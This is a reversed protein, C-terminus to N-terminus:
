EGSFALGTMITISLVLGFFAGLTGLIRVFVLYPFKEDSGSGVLKTWIAAAGGAMVGAVGAFIIAGDPLTMRGLSAFMNLGLWIGIINALLAVGVYYYWPAPEKKSNEIRTALYSALIASVTTGLVASLFFPRQPCFCYGALAAVVPVAVLNLSAVGLVGSLLYLGLLQVIFNGGQPVIPLIPICIFLFGVPTIVGIQAARFGYKRINALSHQIFNGEGQAQGEKGPINEQMFNPAEKRQVSQRVAEKKHYNQTFFDKFSLIQSTTFFIISEGTTGMM